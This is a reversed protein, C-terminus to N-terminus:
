RARLGHLLELNAGGSFGILGDDEEGTRQVGLARAHDEEPAALTRPRDKGAELDAAARPAGGGIEAMAAPADEAPVAGRRGDPAAQNGPVPSGVDSRADQAGLA